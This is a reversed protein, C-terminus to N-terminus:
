SSYKPNVEFKDEEGDIKELNIKFGDVVSLKQLSYILLNTLIEM